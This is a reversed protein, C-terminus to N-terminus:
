LLWAPVILNMSDFAGLEGANCVLAGTGVPVSGRGLKGFSRIMSRAPTASRKIEIPYLVGDAELVLDIESQDTDRYYWLPCDKGANLFSSAIQSVVYNEMVQGALLGNGLTEPTSHRTLAAVLGTDFFYLKPAKVTRKLLNNSYPHLYFIVGSAELIDLWRKATQPTVGVDRAIDAANLLQGCRCAAARIFDAFLLKRPSSVFDGLDRSLYTQLYSSFFVDRDPYRGSVFGPMGGQWIRRYMGPSDTRSGNEARERLAALSLSFPASSGRGYIEHQSLAPLHLVAVRGALSEQSAERLRFAQSGTLWFSGPPAGRDIAIKIYRFLVPAYQVEDILVPPKHLELFMVPDRLALEQSSPDDLTVYNRGAESLMQFVTTKGAQRPGTLLIASYSRSLERITESIDRKFEIM